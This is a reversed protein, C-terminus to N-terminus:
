TQENPHVPKFNKGAAFNGEAILQDTHIAIRRYIGAIICEGEDLISLRLAQRRAVAEGVDFATLTPEDDVVM